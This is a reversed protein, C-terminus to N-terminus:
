KKESGTESPKPLRIEVVQKSKDKKQFVFGVLKVPQVTMLEVTADEPYGSLHEIIQKITYNKKM